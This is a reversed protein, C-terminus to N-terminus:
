VIFLHGKQWRNPVINGENKHKKNTIKSKLSAELCLASTSDLTVLLLFATMHRVSFIHINPLKTSAHTITSKATFEVNIFWCCTNFLPDKFLSRGLVVKHVSWNVFKNQGSTWLLRVKYKGLQLPESNVIETNTAVEYFMLAMFFLLQSYWLCLGYTNEM